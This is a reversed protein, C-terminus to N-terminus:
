SNSLLRFANANVVDMGHRAWAFWGRQGTPRGYTTDFLHEVLEVTMGARQVIYYQSVDGVVAYNAAGTTSSFASAYDSVVVPRGTLVPTGDKTLDM